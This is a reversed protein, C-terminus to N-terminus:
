KTRKRLAKGKAKVVKSKLAPKVKGAKVVRAAKASAANKKLPAKAAKQKHAAAKSVQAVVKKVAAKEKAVASAADKALKKVSGVTAPSAGTRLKATKTAGQKIAAAPQKEESEVEEDDVKTNVSSSSLQSVPVPTGTIAVGDQRLIPRPKPGKMRYRAATPKQAAPLAIERDAGKEASVEACKEGKEGKTEKADKADKESKLDNLLVRTNELRAMVDPIEEPSSLWTLGNKSYLTVPQGNIIVKKSMYENSTLSNSLERTTM